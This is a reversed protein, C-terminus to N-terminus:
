EREPGAVCTIDESSNDERTPQDAKDRRSKLNAINQHVEMGDDLFTYYGDRRELEQLSYGITRRNMLWPVPPPPPPPPKRKIPYPLRYDVEQTTRYDMSRAEVPDYMAETVSSPKKEEVVQSALARMNLLRRQPIIPAYLHKLEIQALMAQTESMGTGGVESGLRKYTSVNLSGDPPFINKNDRPEALTPMQWDHIKVKENYTAPVHFVIPEVEKKEDPCSVFVTSTPPKRHGTM